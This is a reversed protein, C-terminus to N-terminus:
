RPGAKKAEEKLHMEWYLERAGTAWNPAVNSGESPFSDPVRGLLNRAKFTGPLEAQLTFGDRDYILYPKYQWRGVNVDVSPPLRGDRDFRSLIMAEKRKGEELILLYGFDSIMVILGASVFSLFPSSCFISTRIWWNKQKRLETDRLDDKLRFWAFLLLVFAIPYFCCGILFFFPTAMSNEQWSLIALIPLLFLSLLPIIFDSKKRKIEGM